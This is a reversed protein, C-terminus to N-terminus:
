TPGDAEMRFHGSNGETPDDPVIRASDLGGSALIVRADLAIVGDADALLPNVDLEAIEPVQRILESLAVLVGVIADRRVAHVDRYGTLLRSIRTEALM